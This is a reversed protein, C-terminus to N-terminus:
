MSIGRSTIGMRFWKAKPDGNGGEPSLSREFHELEILEAGDDGGFIRAKAAYWDDSKTTPDSERCYAVRNPDEKALDPKGNSMLYIGEDGVLVLGAPCAKPDVKVYPQYHEPAAKSHAVLAVIKVRPFHVTAM